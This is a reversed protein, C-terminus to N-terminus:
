KRAKRTRTRKLSALLVVFKPRCRHLRQPQFRLFSQARNQTRRSRTEQKEPTADEESALTYDIPSRRTAGPLGSEPRFAWAIVPHNRPYLLARRSHAIAKAVVGLMRWVLALVVLAFDALFPEGLPVVLLAFNGTADLGFKLADFTFALPPSFLIPAPTTDICAVAIRATRTM